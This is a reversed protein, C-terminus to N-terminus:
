VDAGSTSSHIGTVGAGAAGALSGAAVGQRPRPAPARLLSTRASAQRRWGTPHPSTRPPSRMSTNGIALVSSSCAAQSCLLNCWPGAAAQSLRQRSEWVRAGAGNRHGARLAADLDTYVPNRQGTALAFL